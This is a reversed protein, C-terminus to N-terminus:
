LDDIEKSTVELGLKDIEKGIVEEKVFQNWVQEELNQRMMDNMPYGQAAYQDEMQKIKQQYESLDIKKGDVKGVTSSNGGFLSGSQGPKADMLLFGLLSLGIIIFVLWAARERIQQIISM